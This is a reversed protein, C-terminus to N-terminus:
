QGGLFHVLDEPVGGALGLSEGPPIADRVDGERVSRDSKALGFNFGKDTRHKVVGVARQLRRMSLLARSETMVAETGAISTFSASARRM